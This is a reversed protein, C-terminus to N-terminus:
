ASVLSRLKADEVVIHNVLWTRLYLLVDFQAVLPNVSLERYFELIKEEFAHHQQQQSKIGVYGYHSMMNEEARFHVKAYADLAKILRAVYRVGRKNIVVDYMDNILDFLYRHHEDITGIGVSLNDNWSVWGEASRKLPPLKLVQKPDIIDDRYLERIRLIEPFSKEFAKVVAPDFHTGSQGIIWAYAEKPSWPEKYPRTSTLADFVDAISCIRAMIPIQEGKLGDPYGNGDWREHHCGAIERAAAILADEGNLITVGISTHTKMIEFEEPSLKGPKLLIADAIGIKGVDHMPAAIYLLERVAEPLDLARAIAQAFNTMRMIHWGTENDRYESAVGLTRIASARAEELELERIHLTELTLTRNVLGSLANSLDTLFNKHPASMQYGAPAFLVTYGICQGENRLPLLILRAMGEDSDEGNIAPVLMDEVMCTESVSSYAFIGTEWQFDTKWAPDMGFQAVQFYKGRPNLLLIAGRPEVPLEPYDHLTEFLRELLIDLDSSFGSGVTLQFVLKSIAQFEKEKNM